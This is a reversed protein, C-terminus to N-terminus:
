RPDNGRESVWDLYFERNIERNAPFKLLSSNEELLSDVFKRNRLPPALITSFSDGITV